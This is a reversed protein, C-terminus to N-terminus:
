NKKLHKEAVELMTQSVFGYQNNLARYHLLLENLFQLNQQLNIGFNHPHWWLHYVKNDKAAKTMETKIRNMRLRELWKLRPMFPKLFRSAPVNVPLGENVNITHTNHGSIPLYTDMLRCLRIFPVEASFRRPKYIWSTPNGRYTIIDNNKLIDLYDENVQNRPFVLSKIQIDNKEAITKAAKIDAGFQEETQGEELCYYHCHTHTGIEHPSNKILQLLSYGFHYPDTQEDEGILPIENAYVNYNERTYSPLQNPISQLLEEKNKAFLFGVTAFTAKINYEKFLNLLSPIVQKVGIIHNGYEKITTVDWVGWQLEFDLSIVFSGTNNSTKNM